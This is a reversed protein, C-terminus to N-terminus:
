PRSMPSYAGGDRGPPRQSSLPGGRLCPRGSAVGACAHSPGSGAGAPKRLLRHGQPSPRPTVMTAKPQEAEVPGPHIWVLPCVGLPSRSRQAPRLMVDGSPDTPLESGVPPAGTLLGPTPHPPHASVIPPMNVLRDPAQTQAEWEQTCVPPTQTGGSGQVSRRPAWVGCVSNLM